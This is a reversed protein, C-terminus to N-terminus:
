EDAPRYFFVFRGGEFDIRLSAGRSLAYDVYGPVAADLHCESVHAPAELDRDRDYWSLLMAEGLRRAAEANALSLATTHDEAVPMQVRVVGSLDRTGPIPCRDNPENPCM